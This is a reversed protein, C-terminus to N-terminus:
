NDVQSILILQPRFKGIGMFWPGNESAKLYDPELSFHVFFFGFTSYLDPLFIKGQPRWM